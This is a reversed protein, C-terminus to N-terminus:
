PGKVLDLVLKKLEQICFCDLLVVFCQQFVLLLKKQHM